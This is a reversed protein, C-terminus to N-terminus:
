TNEQIDGRRTIIVERIPVTGGSAQAATRCANILGQCCPVEMRAVTCSAPAAARFLETLREVLVEMGEFKPCAILVVKKGQRLRHFESSAFAACDAALLLDAGRLFPADPSMLRLKLPWHLNGAGGDGAFMGAGAGPCGGARSPRLEADALPTFLQPKSGPCGCAHGGSRGPGSGGQPSHSHHTQGEAPSHGHDPHKKLSRGQGALHHEVAEEDYADAERRVIKLAGTPCGSLCAGLGDCYRDAIVKAKGGVLAIAGEACDLICQGCGNCLEEDIEIIDRMHKKMATEKCM